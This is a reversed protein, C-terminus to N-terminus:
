LVMQNLTTVFCLDDLFVESFEFVICPEPVYLIQILWMYFWGCERWSLYTHLFVSPVFTNKLEDHKWGFMLRVCLCSWGSLHGQGWVDKVLTSYKGESM